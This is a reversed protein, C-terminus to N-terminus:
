RIERGVYRAYATTAGATLFLYIYVTALSITGAQFLVASYNVMSHILGGLFLGALGPGAGRDWFAYVIAGLAAHLPMVALRELLAPLVQLGPIGSALVPSLVVWAELGGYGLGTLAGVMWRSVARPGLARSLGATGLKVSEQILGSLLIPPISLILPNATSLTAMALYSVQVQLPIQIYAISPVFTVAGLVAPVFLALAGTRGGPRRSRHTGFLLGLTLAAMTAMAVFGRVEMTALLSLPDGWNM